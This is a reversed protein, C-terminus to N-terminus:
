IFNDTEDLLVVKVTTSGVDIGMRLLQSMYVENRLVCTCVCFLFYHIDHIEKFKPYM